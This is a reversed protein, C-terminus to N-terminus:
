LSSKRILSIALYVKEFGMQRLLKSCHNATAGTTYIDDVLLVTGSGKLDTKFFCKKVNEYREAASLTHQVKGDDTRYLTPICPVSLLASLEKAILQAQNYGRNRRSLPSQPVFTVADFATYHPSSLIKDALLYAFARAFYPHSTKLAVVGEKAKGEYVLTVFSHEFYIKKGRCAACISHSFEEVPRGCLRCVDEDTFPLTDMCNRCVPSKSTLIDRCFACKPPFFFDLLKDTM